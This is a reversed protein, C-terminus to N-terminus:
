KKSPKAVTQLAKVQSAAEKQAAVMRKKDAQIEAARQMTRLDDQAQYKRDSATSPYSAM